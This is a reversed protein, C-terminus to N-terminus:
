PSARSTRDWPASQDTGALNIGIRISKDCNDLEHRRHIM